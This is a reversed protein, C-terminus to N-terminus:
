NDLCQLDVRRNLAQGAKSENSSVPKRMGESETAIRQAAIGYAILRKKVASARALGLIQNGADSGLNCTHGTVLIRNKCHNIQELLQIKKSTSLGPLKDSDLKFPVTFIVNAHAVPTLDPTLESTKSISDQIAPASSSSSNAAPTLESGAKNKIPEVAMLQNKEYSKSKQYTPLWGTDSLYVGAILVSFVIFGLLRILTNPRPQPLVGDLGDLDLIRRKTM